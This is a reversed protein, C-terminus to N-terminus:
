EMKFLLNWRKAASNNVRQDGINKNAYRIIQSQDAEIGGYFALLSTFYVSVKMQSHQVSNCIDLTPCM